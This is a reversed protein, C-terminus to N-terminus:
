MTLRLESEESLRHALTGLPPTGATVIKCHWGSHQPMCACISRALSTLYAIKATREQRQATYVQARRRRVSRRLSVDGCGARCSTAELM